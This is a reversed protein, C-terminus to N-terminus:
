HIKVSPSNGARSLDELIAELADAVQARGADVAIKHARAVHALVPDGHGATDSTKFVIGAYLRPDGDANRFCRGFAVVEFTGSKGNLSYTEHYPDGSLIADHISQAVKPRDAEVIRKLFPEIPLGALADTAKLGFLKAVATDAQVIGTELDWTFIGSDNADLREEEDGQVRTVDM